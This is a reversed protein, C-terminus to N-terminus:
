NNRMTELVNDNENLRIDQDECPDVPLQAQLRHLVFIFALDLGGALVPLYSAHLPSFKSIWLQTSCPRKVVANEKRSCVGPAAAGRPTKKTKCRRSGRCRAENYATEGQWLSFNSSNSVTCLSSSSFIRRSSSSLCLMSMVEPALRCRLCGSDKVCFLAKRDTYTNFGGTM